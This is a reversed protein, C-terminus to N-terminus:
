ISPLLPSHASCALASGLPQRKITDVQQFDYALGLRFPRYKKYLTRDYFGGGMGVRTGHVDFMLLPM